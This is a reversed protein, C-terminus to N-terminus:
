AHERKLSTRISDQHGRGLGLGQSKERHRREEEVLSGSRREQPETHPLAAVCYKLFEVDRTEGVTESRDHWRLPSLPTCHRPVRM